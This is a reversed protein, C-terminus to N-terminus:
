SSMEETSYINAVVDTYVARALEVGCRWQLMTRPYKAWNSDGGRTLGARDADEITWTIRQPRPDGRRRTEWTCSTASSDILCFYECSPSAKCLGVITQASMVPKGKIVHFASVSTVADLGMSRGKLILALATEANPVGFSRSSHLLQALKWARGSDSPELAREWGEVPAARVIATQEDTPQAVHEAAPEPEPEDTAPEPEDFEADSIETVPKREEFLEDFNIPLDASLSVLQKSRRLAEESAAITEGLKGPIDGQKAASYVDSASGFEALLAAARKAGVGAVGPVNDSRDGMLALLDRVLHPAVGFKERVSDDTLRAGTRPNLVSVLDADSVLQALDKDQSLVTVEMQRQVALQAATAIVDDAEYGQVGWVVHGDAVLRGRLRRLQDVAAPDPADRNAKYEPDVQKRLYPPSDVCVACYAHDGLHRVISTYVGEVASGIEQDATAHWATWFLGSLDVLLLSSM